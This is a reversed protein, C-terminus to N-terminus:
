EEQDEDDLETHFLSRKAPIDTIINMESWVSKWDSFEMWFIGDNDTEKQLAEAVEPHEEWEESGDSWRGNWEHYRWPNRMCLMKFEGVQVCRLVSYAHNPVIGDSRRAEDAAAQDYEVLKQWMAEAEIGEVEEHITRHISFANYWDKDPGITYHKYIWGAAVSLTLKAPSINSTNIWGEETGPVFKDNTPPNDRCTYRMRKGQIEEEYISAWAYLDGKAESNPDCETTVPLSAFQLVWLNRETRSRRLHGFTVGGTMMTLAQNPNIRLHVQRADLAGYSGSCKAFIKELLQGWISGHRSKVFFPQQYKKSVPVYDDVVFTAWERKSTDYMRVEYRGNPSIGKGQFLEEKIYAPYDGLAAISAILWCDGLGGQSLDFPEDDNFIVPNEYIESLRKWTVDDESKVIKLGYAYEGFSAACPPFDPDVWPEDSVPSPAKQEVQVPKEAHVEVDESEWFCLHPSYVKTKLSVEKAENYRGRYKGPLHDMCWRDKEYCCRFGDESLYTPRGGALEEQKVLECRVEETDIFIKEPAKAILEEASPPPPEKCSMDVEKVFGKKGSKTARWVAWSEGPLLTHPARSTKVRASAKPSTRWYIQWAKRQKQYFLVRENDACFFVPRRGYFKDQQVYEGNLEKRSCGAVVFTFTGFSPLGKAIGQGLMSTDEAFLWRVFEEISLVGDGSSDAQLLLSDISENDFKGELAKLVAGLEERDICGSGDADFNKFTELIAQSREAM